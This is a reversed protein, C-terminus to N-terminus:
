KVTLSYQPTPNLPCFYVYEGKTLKVTNTNVAEGNKVAKTVYAAQIHHEAETMGKPAIVFGVEHDVGNNSIEFIYEGETLILGSTTFESPRQELKIVKTEEQGFSINGTLSILTIALITLINKM